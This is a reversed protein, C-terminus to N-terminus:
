DKNFSLLNIKDLDKELQIKMFPQFQYVIVQRQQPPHKEIPENADYNIPEFLNEVANWYFKRADPGLAHQSNTAQM